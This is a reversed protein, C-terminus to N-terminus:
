FSGGGGGHTSGSSSTHTTSGGSSAGDDKPKATKTVSSYMFIDKESTLRFSDKKIYETATKKPKATNMRFRMIAVSIGAIVLAIVFAIIELIVYDAKEMYPNDTDYPKGDKYAHVFDISMDLFKDSADFYEGDSLYPKIEDKICEIGYDTFAKIAAGTTSIHYKRDGKSVIFLVGSKESDIGYGNYDYYDDAYDQASKGDLSKVTLIVVDFKEKQIEKIKESLKKEDSASILCAEDIVYSKEAASSISFDVLFVMICVSVVLFMFKKLSSLKLNLNRKLATSIVSERFKNEM